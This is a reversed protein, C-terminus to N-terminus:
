KLFTGNSVMISDLYSKYFEYKPKTNIAENIIKIISDNVIVINMPVIDDEMINNKYYLKRLSSKLGNISYYTDYKYRWYDPYEKRSRFESEAATDYITIAIWKFFSDTQDHLKNCYEIQAYSFGCYIDYFTLFFNKGSLSSSDQTYEFILSSPKTELDVKFNESEEWIAKEINISICSNIFTLVYLIFLIRFMKM